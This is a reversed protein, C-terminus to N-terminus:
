KLGTFEKTKTRYLIKEFTCKVTNDVSTVTDNTPEQNSEYRSRVMNNCDNFCSNCYKHNKDDYNVLTNELAYEM